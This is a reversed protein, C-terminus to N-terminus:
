RYGFAAMPEALMGDLQAIVPASLKERHDGPSVKRIFQTPDEVEPRVDIWKLVADVQGLTVGWGFQRAVDRVMKAKDFIIDEYRLVLLKSDDLLPIYRAMAEGLRAGEALAYDEVSQGQATERKKLMDDSAGGEAQTGAGPMRHTRATSFYESVIADRPDRVLLVKLGRTFEPHATLGTPCDRFGGYCNGGVILAPPAETERWRFFPVDHDFLDGPLDIWNVANFKALLKVARNFMSSGSKRVGLAFWAPRSPDAADVQFTVGEFAVARTEGTFGDSL